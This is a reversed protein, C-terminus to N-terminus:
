DQCLARWSKCMEFRDKKRGKKFELICRDDTKNPFTRGGHYRGIKAGMRMAVANPRVNYGAVEGGSVPISLCLYKIKLKQRTNIDTFM